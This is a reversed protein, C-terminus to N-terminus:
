SCAPPNKKLLMVSIYSNFFNAMKNQFVYNMTMNVPIQWQTNIQALHVLM